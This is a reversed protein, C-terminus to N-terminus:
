VWSDVAHHGFSDDAGRSGKAANRSSGLSRSSGLRASLLSSTSSSMSGTRPLADAVTPLSGHSASFKRSAIDGDGKHRWFAPHPHLKGAKVLSLGLHKAKDPLPALHDGVPSAREAQEQEEEAIALGTRLRAMRWTACSSLYEQITNVLSRPLKALDAGSCCLVECPSSLAVVTFPEPEPLPLSGFIGGVLLIGMKRVIDKCEGGHVESGTKLVKGGKPDRPQPTWCKLPTGRNRRGGTTGSPSTSRSALFKSGEFRRFEVSGNFVVFITDDSAAGQSLFEHDKSFSAKKFFYSAHPKNTKEKPPPLDRMGPVHERLFEVKQAEARKIDDKLVQDFARRSIVLFETDKLCKITASRPQSQLLALEGILMGPKFLGVQKGVSSGDHYCSFGEATKKRMNVNAIDEALEICTLSRSRRRGWHSEPSEITTASRSLTRGAAMRAMPETRSMDMRMLDDTTAAMSPTTEGVSRLPDRENRGITNMRRVPTMPKGRASDPTDEEESRVYIGVEGSLIAYCNGPPDGQRFIITDAPYRVHNAITPLKQQISPEMDQFFKFNRLIAAIRQCNM